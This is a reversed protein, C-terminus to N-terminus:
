TVTSGHVIPGPRKVPRSRWAMLLGAAVLVPGLIVPSLWIWWAVGAAVLMAEPLYPVSDIRFSSRRALVALGAGFALAALAAAIVRWNGGGSRSLFDVTL